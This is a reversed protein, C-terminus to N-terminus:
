PPLEGRLKKITQHLDYLQFFQYGIYDIIGLLVDISFTVFGTVTAGFLIAIGRAARGIVMHGTGTIILGM